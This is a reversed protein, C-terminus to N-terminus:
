LPMMEEEEQAKAEADEVGEVEVEKIMEKM